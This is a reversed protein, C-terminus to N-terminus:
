DQITVIGTIWNVLVDYQREGYVVRVRGGTSTGDPYFRINGASGSVLEDTATYLSLAFRPDLQEIPRASGLGMTHGAVDITVAVERNSSVALGHAERLTAAVSRAAAKLELGPMVRQFAPVALTVTLGLIALVVLLEFLTFGSETGAPSTATRATAAKAAM